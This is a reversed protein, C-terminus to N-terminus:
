KHSNDTDHKCKSDFPVRENPTCVMTRESVGPKSVHVAEFVAKLSVWKVLLM